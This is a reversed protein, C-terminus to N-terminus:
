QAEARILERCLSRILESRSCYRAYSIKDLAHIMSLPMLTHVPFIADELSGEGYRKAVDSGRKRANKPSYPIAM